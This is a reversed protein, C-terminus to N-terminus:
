AVKQHVPNERTKLDTGKASLSAVLHGLALIEEPQRLWQVEPIPIYQAPKYNDTEPGLFRLVMVVFRPPDEDLFQLIELGFGNAFRILLRNRQPKVEEKILHFQPENHKMLERFVARLKEAGIGTAVMTEEKDSARTLKGLARSSFKGVVKVV